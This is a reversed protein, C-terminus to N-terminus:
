GINPMLIMDSGAIIKRALAPDFGIKLGLRDPFKDKLGLILDEQDGEGLIVLGADLKGFIYDAAEALLNIGKQATLRTVMGILPKEILDQPLGMKSLIDRDM